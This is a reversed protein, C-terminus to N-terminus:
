LFAASTPRKYSDAQPPDPSEKLKPVPSAVEERYMGVLRPLRRWSM